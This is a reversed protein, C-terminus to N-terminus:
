AGNEELLKAAEGHMKKSNIFFGSPSTLENGLFINQAVDLNPVVEPEQHVIHIGLKQAAYPSNLQVPKEKWYIRGSDKQCVGGAIRALTSKGGGNKSVLAWLREQNLSLNVNNLAVHNMFSKCICEMRFVEIKM